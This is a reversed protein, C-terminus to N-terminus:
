VDVGFRVGLAPDYFDEDVADTRRATVRVLGMTEGADQDLAETDSPFLGKGTLEQVREFDRWHRWGDPLLEARVDTVASSQSWHRQWWQATKFCACSEDWFAKGNAQPQTLHEPPGGALERTLGPMVVGLLGGPRVFRSIYGLYLADTGFYTYADISVLADFFGPAFPLSHAELRMPCVRDAVGADLVRAWNNDPGIWLDGAWVRVGLERALFVSSLAKGCGLDLVRMGPELPLAECLWEVLWLANPGMQNDLVWDADYRSSLPFEPKNMLRYAEDM